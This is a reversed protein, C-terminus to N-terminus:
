EHPEDTGPRRSQQWAQIEVCVEYMKEQLEVPAERLITGLRNGLNEWTLEDLADDGYIHRDAADNWGAKFNGRRRGDQNPETNRIDRSYTLGTIRM